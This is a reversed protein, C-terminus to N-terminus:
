RNLVKIKLNAKQALKSIAKDKFDDFFLNYNYM